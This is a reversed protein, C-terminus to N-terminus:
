DTNGQFAEAVQSQPFKDVVLYENEAEKTSGIVGIIPLNTIEKLEDKTNVFNYFMSKIFIVLM